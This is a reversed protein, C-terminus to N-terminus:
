SGHGYVVSPGGKVAETEAYFQSGDKGVVLLGEGLGISRQLAGWTTARFGRSDELVFCPDEAAFPARGASFTAPLVEEINHCIRSYLKDPRKTAEHLFRERFGAVVYRQAFAELASKSDM